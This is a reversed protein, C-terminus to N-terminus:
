LGSARGAVLGVADSCQLCYRLLFCFQLGSAWGCRFIDGCESTFQLVKEDSQLNTANKWADSARLLALQPNDDTTRFLVPQSTHCSSQWALLSWRRHYYTSGTKKSVSWDCLVSRQASIWGLDCCVAAALWLTDMDICASRRYRAESASSPSPLYYFASFLLLYVALAASCCNSHTKKQSLM